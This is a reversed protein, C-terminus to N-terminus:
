YDNWIAVMGACFATCTKAADRASRNNNALGLGARDAEIHNRAIDEFVSWFKSPVKRKYGSLETLVEHERRGEGGDVIDMTRSYGDLVAWLGQCHRIAKEEGSEFASASLWRDISSGGRNLKVQTKTGTESHVIFKDIYQGQREAFGNLVDRTDGTVREAALRSQWQLYTEDTRQSSADKRKAKPM